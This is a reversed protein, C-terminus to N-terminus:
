AIVPLHRYTQTNSCLRHWVKVLDVYQEAKGHQVGRTMDMVARVVNTTATYVADKERDLEVHTPLDLQLVLSRNTLSCVGYM